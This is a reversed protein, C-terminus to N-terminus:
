FYVIAGKFTHLPLNSIGCVLNRERAKISFTLIIFRRSFSKNEVHYDM